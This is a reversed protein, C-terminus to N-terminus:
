QEEFEERKRKKSTDIQEPSLKEKKVEEVPVQFDLVEREFQPFVNKDEKDNTTLVVVHMTGCGVERVPFEEFM